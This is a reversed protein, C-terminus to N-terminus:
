AEKRELVQPARADATLDCRLARRDLLSGAPAREIGRATVIRESRISRFKIPANSTSSRQTM